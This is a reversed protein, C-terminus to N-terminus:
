HKFYVEKKKGWGGIFFSHAQSESEREQQNKKDKKKRMKYKKEGEEKGEQIVKWLSLSHKSIEM